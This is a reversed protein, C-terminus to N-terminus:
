YNLRNLEEEKIENFLSYVVILFYATLAILFNLLLFWGVGLNDIFEPLVELLIVLLVTAFLAFMFPVILKSQRKFTGYILLLSAIALIWGFFILCINVGLVTDNIEDRKEQDPIVEDDDHEDDDQTTEDISSITTSLLQTINAETDDDQLDMDPPFVIITLIALVIGLLGAVYGGTSLNFAAGFKKVTLM